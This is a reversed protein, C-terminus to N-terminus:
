GSSALSPFLEHYKNLKGTLTLFIILEFVIEANLKHEGRIRIEIPIHNKIGKIILWWINKATEAASTIIKVQKNWNNEPAIQGLKISPSLGSLTLVLEIPRRVKAAVDTTIIMEVHPIREIIIPFKNWYM